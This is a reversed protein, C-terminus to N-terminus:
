SFKFNGNEYKSNGSIKVYVTDRSIGYVNRGICEYQGQDETKFNFIELVNGNYIKSTGSRAPLSKGDARRWELSPTPNGSLITCILILHEGYNIKKFYDEIKQIKIKPHNQTSSSMAKFFVHLFKLVFM